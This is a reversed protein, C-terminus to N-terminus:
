WVCWLFTKKQIGWQWKYQFQLLYKGFAYFTFCFCHFQFLLQTWVSVWRSSFNLVVRAHVRDNPGQSCMRSSSNKLLQGDFSRTSIGLNRPTKFSSGLDNWFVRATAGDSSSWKRFSSFNIQGRVRSKRWSTRYCKRTLECMVRYRTYMQWVMSGFCSRDFIGWFVPTFDFSLGIFVWQPSSSVLDRIFIQFSGPM